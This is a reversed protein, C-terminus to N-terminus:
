GGFLQSIPNRPSPAQRREIFRYLLWFGAVGVLTYVLRTMVTDRGFLAAVLDVNGIGVLGWNVAGIAALLRGALDLADMGELNV